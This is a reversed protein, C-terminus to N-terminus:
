NVNLLEVEFVLTSNPPIVNGAGAPGYGLDSPIHLRRKGGVKMGMVGQDWGPIVQGAGLTFEFPMSRDLSSDFKVGTTLWGTYHVSVTKGAAAEAGTGVTLDEVKLATVPAMGSPASADATAPPAADAPASAPAEASTAASESSGGKQKTFYWAAGGGIALVVLAAILIKPNM